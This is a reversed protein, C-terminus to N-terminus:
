IRADIQNAGIAINLDRGEIDVDAVVRRRRYAKVLGRARLNSGNEIPGTRRVETEASVDDSSEVLRRVDAEIAEVEGARDAQVEAWVAPAVRVREWETGAPEGTAIGEAALRALIHEELYQDFANDEAGTSWGDASEEGTIRAHGRRTAALWDGRDLAGTEDARRVLELLAVAISADHPRLGASFARVTV